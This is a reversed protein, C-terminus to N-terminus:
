GREKRPDCGGRWNESEPGKKGPAAGYNVLEDHAKGRQEYYRFIKLLIGEIRALAAVKQPDPKEAQAMETSADGFMPILMSVYVLVSKRHETWLKDLEAVKRTVWLTRKGDPNSQRLDIRGWLRIAATCERRLCASYGRMVQKGHFHDDIMEALGNGMGLAALTRLTRRTGPAAKIPALGRARVDDLIKTQLRGSIAAMQNKFLARSDIEADLRM